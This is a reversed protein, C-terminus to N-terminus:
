KEMWFLARKKTPLWFFDQPSFFFMLHPVESVEDFGEQPPEFSELRVGENAAYGGSPAVDVQRIKRPNILCAFVLVFFFDHNVM